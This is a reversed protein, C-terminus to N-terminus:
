FDQRLEFTYTGEGDPVAIYRGGAHEAHPAAFGRISIGGQANNVSTTQQEKEAALTLIKRAM